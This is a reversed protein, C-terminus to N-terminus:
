DMRSGGNVNIAQGTINAAYDSALFSALYGIDEPTQERKLPIREEVFKEFVQRPTLGRMDDRALGRRYAIREWMPTWLLGPCISNVNINFPALELAQAQTLSIVGAKSVNYPPNEPGGQRGAGSAINVVKGYQREKMHRAVADTVRAIGKVNVEYILDWDEESSRERQEWGPAAIIGANNVLIDIRGFGAVIDEVAKDVSAQDTVDLFVALSQRGLEAVESAVKEANKLNVDAVAVDAGNRALALSIGRGIGRGGGTVVAVKDTVYM